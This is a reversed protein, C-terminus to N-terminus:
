FKIQTNLDNIEKEIEEIRHKDRENQRVWEYATDTLIRRFVRRSDRELEAEKQQIRLLLTMKEDRLKEITELKRRNERAQKAKAEAEKAKAEEEEKLYAQIEERTPPRSGATEATSDSTSRQCSLLASLMITLCLTNLKFM